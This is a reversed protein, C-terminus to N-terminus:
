RSPPLIPEASDCTLSLRAERSHGDRSHWLDLQACVGDIGSARARDKATARLASAHDAGLVAGSHRIQSPRLANAASSRSACSIVMPVKAPHM